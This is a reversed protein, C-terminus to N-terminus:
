IRIDYYVFIRYCQQQRNLASGQGSALARTVEAARHVVGNIRLTTLASSVIGLIELPGPQDRGMRVRVIALEAPLQALGQEVRTPAETM